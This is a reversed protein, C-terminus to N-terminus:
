YNSSTHISTHLRKCSPFYSIHSPWKNHVLLPSPGGEMQIGISPIPHISPRCQCEVYQVYMARLNSQASCAPLGPRALGDYRLAASAATVHPQIPNSQGCIIANRM